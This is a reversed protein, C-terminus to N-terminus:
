DEWLSEKNEKIQIFLPAVKRSFTQELEPSYFHRLKYIAERKAESFSDKTTHATFMMRREHIVPEILGEVSPALSALRNDGSFLNSLIVLDKYFRKSLQGSIEKNLIDDLLMQITTRHVAEGSNNLAYIVPFYDHIKWLLNSDDILVIISKHKSLGSHIYNCHELFSPSQKLFNSLSSLDKGFGNERLKHKITEHLRAEKSSSDMLHFADLDELTKYGTDAM